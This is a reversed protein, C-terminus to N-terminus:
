SRLSRARMTITAHPDYGTVHHAAFHVNDAFHFPTILFSLATILFSLTNDINDLMLAKKQGWWESDACTKCKRVSYLM